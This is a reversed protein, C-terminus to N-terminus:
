LVSACCRAVALLRLTSPRASDRCARADDSLRASYYGPDGTPSDMTPMLLRFKEVSTVVNNEASFRRGRGSCSSFPRKMGPLLPFPPRGRPARFLSPSSNGVASQQLDGLMVSFVGTRSVLPDPRPGAAAAAAKSGPHACSVARRATSTILASRQRLTGMAACGPNTACAGSRQYKAVLAPSAHLV